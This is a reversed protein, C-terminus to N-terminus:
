EESADDFASDLDHIEGRELEGLAELLEDPIELDVDQQLDQDIKSM